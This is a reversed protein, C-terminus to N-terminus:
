NGLLTLLLGAIMFPSILGISLIWGGTEYFRESLWTIFIIYIVVLSGLILGIGVQHPSLHICSNMPIILPTIM